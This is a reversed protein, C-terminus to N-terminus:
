EGGGKLRRVASRSYPRQIRPAGRLRHWIRALAATPVAQACCRTNLSDRRPDARFTPLPNTSTLVM